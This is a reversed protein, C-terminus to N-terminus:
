YDQDFHYSRAWPLMSSWPVYRGGARKADTRIGKGNVYDEDDLIDPYIPYAYPSLERKSPRVPRWALPWGVARAGIFRAGPRKQPAARPIWEELAHFRPWDKFMRFNMRGRGGLRKAPAGIAEESPAEKVWLAGEEATANQCVVISYTAILAIWLGRMM